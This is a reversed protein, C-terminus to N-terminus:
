SARTGQLQASFSSVAMRVHVGAYKASMVVGPSHVSLILSRSGRRHFDDQRFWRKRRMSTTHTARCRTPKSYQCGERSESAVSVHETSFMKSPLKVPLSHPTILCNPDASELSSPVGCLVYLTRGLTGWQSLIQCATGKVWAHVRLPECLLLYQYLM